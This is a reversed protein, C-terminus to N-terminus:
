LAIVRIDSLLEDVVDAGRAVEEETLPIRPEVRGFLLIDVEDQNLSKGRM